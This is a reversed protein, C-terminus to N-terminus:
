APGAGGVTADAQVEFRWAAGDPVVHGATPHAFHAM